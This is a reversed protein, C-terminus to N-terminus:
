KALRAQYREAVDSALQQGQDLAQEVSM